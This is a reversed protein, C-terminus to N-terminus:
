HRFTMVFSDTQYKHQQMLKTYQVNEQLDVEFDKENLPAKQDIMLKLGDKVHSGSMLLAQFYEIM